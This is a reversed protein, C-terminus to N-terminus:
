IREESGNPEVIVKIAGERRSVFTDLAREFEILPFVHTILDRVVLQGSSILPIVENSVNPNARSGYIAIENHVVYKFPLEEM